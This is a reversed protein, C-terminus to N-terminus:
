QFNFGNTSLTILFCHKNMRAVENSHHPNKKRMQNVTRLNNIGVEQTLNIEESQFKEKIAKQVM